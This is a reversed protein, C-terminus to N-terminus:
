NQQIWKITPLKRSATFSHRFDPYGMVLCAYIQRNKPVALRKQLGHNFKLAILLFGIYCTGLGKAYAYNMINAAAINCNESHFRGKRPAHILFLIPAHHLIFDRGKSTEDIYYAMANLYRDLGATVSLGQLFRYIIKGLGSSKRQYM